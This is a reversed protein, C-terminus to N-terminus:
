GLMRDMGCVKASSLNLLMEIGCQLPGDAAILLQQSGNILSAASDPSPQVCYCLQMVSSAAPVAQVALFSLAPHLAPLSLVLPGPAAVAAAAVTSFCRTEAPLFCVGQRVCM